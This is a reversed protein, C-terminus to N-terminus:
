VYFLEGVFCREDRAFDLSKPRAFGLGAANFTRPKARVLGEVESREPGFNIRLSTSPSPVFPDPALAPSNM